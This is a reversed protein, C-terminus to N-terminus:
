FFGCLLVTTQGDAPLPGYPQAARARHEPRPLPGPCYRSPVGAGGRPPSCPVFKEGLRVISLDSM